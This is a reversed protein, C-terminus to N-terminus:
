SKEYGWDMCHFAETRAAEEIQEPTADDDIWFEDYWESGATRTAIWFKILM